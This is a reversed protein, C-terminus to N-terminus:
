GVITEPTDDSSLITLFKGPFNVPNERFVSMKLNTIDLVAKVEMDLEVNRKGCKLCSKDFDQRFDHKQPRCTEPQHTSGEPTSAPKLDGSHLVFEPFRLILFDLNSSRKQGFM